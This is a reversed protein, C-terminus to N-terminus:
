KSKELNFVKMKPETNVINAFKVVDMDLLQDYMKLDVIIRMSGNLPIFPIGFGVTPLRGKYYESKDKAELDDEYLINMDVETDAEIRYNSFMMFGYHSDLWLWNTVGAEVPTDIIQTEIESIKGDVIADEKPGNKVRVSAGQLDYGDLGIKISPKGVLRRRIPPIETQADYSIEQEHHVIQLKMKLLPTKFYTLMMEYQTTARIPGSKEAIAKAVINKNTLTVPVGAFANAKMQIKITDVPKRPHAGDFSDYYFEQWMFANKPDVKLAYYDTEVRGLQSSYRVYFSESEVRADEVLYVYVKKNEYTELEIESIIKGDSAMGNKRRPGADKFMFLLEDKEDFFGENGLIPDDEQAKEDLEKMYIYGSKTREDFQYPIATMRGGKVATLSYSSINGGKIATVQEPKLAIVRAKDSTEGGKSALTLNSTCLAIGIFSFYIITKLFPHNSSQM